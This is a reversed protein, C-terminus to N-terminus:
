TIAAHRLQIWHRRTTNVLHRPLNYEPWPDEAFRDLLFDQVPVLISVEDGFAEEFRHRGLALSPGLAETLRQEDYYGGEFYGFHHWACLGITHQHQEDGGVRRGRETVHEISTRVNPYGMLLCPLCGCYHAITDMREADHARIRATKGVM